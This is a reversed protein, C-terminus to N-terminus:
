KKRKLWKLNLNPKGELFMLCLSLVAAIIFAINIKPFIFFIGALIIFLFCSSLSRVINRYVIFEDIDPGKKEAKDYWVAQFPIAAATRSLQYFSQALFASLPNIVFFKGLWSLSTLTSGIALLETKSRRDTIRGIYLTFLLSILLAITTINGITFYGIALIALFLPWLYTNIMGEMGNAAFALNHYKNEPKRIRQFAKLYSDTYIQHVEKSLFLPIASSFLVVLVAIFLAPYGVTAVIAGGITPALIGPFTLVFNLKGVEKGLQKKESFRAFDTHFAPWYLIAGLSCLVIALVIFIISKDFFLLCLYYGWIFPHSLMMCHKLGIKTM